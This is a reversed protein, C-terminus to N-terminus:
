PKTKRDYMHMQKTETPITTEAWSAVCLFSLSTVLNASLAPLYEGSSATITPLPRAVNPPAFRGTSRQHARAFSANM